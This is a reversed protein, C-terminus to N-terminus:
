LIVNRNRAFLLSIEGAIVAYNNFVLLALLKGLIMDSPIGIFYGAKDYVKLIGM